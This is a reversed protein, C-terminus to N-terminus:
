PGAPELAAPDGANAAVGEHAAALKAELAVVETRLKHLADSAAQQREAARKEHEELRAALLAEMEQLSTRRAMEAGARRTAASVGACRAALTVLKLERLVKQMSPRRAAPEQALCGALLRDAIPIGTLTPASPSEGGPIKRGTLMEHLVGGFALIDTSADAAQGELKEPPSILDIGAGALVVSEPSVAGHVEGRDHMKRLTEALLTAYRLAEPAPMRGESLRDALTRFGPGSTQPGTTGPDGAVTGNQAAIWSAGGGSKGPYSSELEQVSGLYYAVLESEPYHIARAYQRLYSTTYIGGPLKKFDGREIAELYRSAIRTTLAIQRISLGLQTRAEALQAISQIM